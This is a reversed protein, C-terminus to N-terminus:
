NFIRVQQLPLLRRHRRHLLPDRHPRRHGAPLDRDLRGEEEVLDPRLASALFFNNLDDAESNRM